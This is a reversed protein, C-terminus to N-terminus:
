SMKSLSIILSFLSYTPLSLSLLDFKYIISFTFLVIIGVVEQMAGGFRVFTTWGGGWNGFRYWSGVPYRRFTYYFCQNVLM